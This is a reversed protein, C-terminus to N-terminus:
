LCSSSDASNLNPNFCYDYILGGEKIQLDVNLKFPSEFDIPLSTLNSPLNFLRITKDNNCTMLCSGDPSWKCGKFYNDKDCIEFKTLCAPNHALKFRTYANVQETQDDTSDKTQGNSQGDVPDTSAGKNADNVLVDPGNETVCQKKADIPEMAFRKTVSEDFGNALDRM